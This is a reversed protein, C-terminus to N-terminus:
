LIRNNYYETKDVLKGFQVNKQLASHLRQLYETRPIEIAGLSATHDNIVQIDFLTYGQKKLHGALAVLAVKSADRELHFMSEAEFFGQIATGYIGGVLCGNRRVEISHGFGLRHLETYANIMEPTIWTGKSQHAKACGSIVGHFDTDATIQFRGSRCTRVLRRSIYFRDFEFICRPDVSFWGLITKVKGNNYEYEFPWPFIGHVFADVLWDPQLMGGVGILGDSDAENVNPFIKSPSFPTLIESAPIKSIENIPQSM